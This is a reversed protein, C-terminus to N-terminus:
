LIDDRETKFCSVGGGGSEGGSGEEVESGTGEFPRSSERRVERVEEVPGEGM